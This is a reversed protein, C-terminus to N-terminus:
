DAIERYRKEIEAEEATLDARGNEGGANADGRVFGFYEQDKLLSLVQQTEPLRGQSILIDALTHYDNECMKLFSEQADPGIGAIESRIAQVVNISEKGYFTAVRPQGSDRWDIMVVILANAEGMRDKVERAVALARVYYASAKELQNLARYTEGLGFLVEGARSKEKIEVFIALSREFFDIAKERQGLREYCTALAELSLAERIRDKIERQVALAQKWISSRRKTGPGGCQIPAPCIAAM